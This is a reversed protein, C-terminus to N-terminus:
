ALAVLAVGILSAIITIAVLAHPFWRELIEILM